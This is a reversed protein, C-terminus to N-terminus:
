KEDKEIFGILNILSEKSVGMLGSVDMDIVTELDRLLEKKSKGTKRKYQSDAAIYVKERVLKSRVSKITKGM